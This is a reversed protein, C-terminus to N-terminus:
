QAWTVDTSFLMDYPGQTTRADSGLKYYLQSWGEAPTNDLHNNRCQIAGPTNGQCAQWQTFTGKFRMVYGYTSYTYLAMTYWQNAHTGSRAYIEPLPYAPVVGNPFTGFTTGLGDMVQLVQRITADLAIELITTSDAQSLNTVMLGLVRTQPQTGILRQM